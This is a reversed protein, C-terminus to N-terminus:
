DATISVAVSITVINSEASKVNEELMLSSPTGWDKAMRSWRPTEGIWHRTMPASSSAPTAPASTPKSHAGTPDGRRDAERQQRDTGDAEM